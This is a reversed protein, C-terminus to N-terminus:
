TQDTLKKALAKLSDASRPKGSYNTNIMIDKPGKILFLMQQDQVMAPVKALLDEPVKNTVLFAGDGIGTLVEYTYIAGANSNEYMRQDVVFHTKADSADEDTNIQIGLNNFGHSQDVAEYVCHSSKKDDAAHESLKAPTSLVSAADAQSVLSCADLIAADLRAAPGPTAAGASADTTAFKPHSEAATTRDQHGCASLAVTLAISFCWTRNM